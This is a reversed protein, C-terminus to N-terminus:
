FDCRSKFCDRQSTSERVPQDCRSLRQQLRGSAKSGLCHLAVEYSFDFREKLQALLTRNCIKPERRGRANYRWFRQARFGPLGLFAALDDYTEPASLADREVFFLRDQFAAQWKLLQGFDDAAKLEQELAEEFSLGARGAFDVLREFRDVPDCVTAGM